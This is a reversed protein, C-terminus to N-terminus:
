AAGSRSARRAEAVEDISELLSRYLLASRVAASFAAGLVEGTRASASAGNRPFARLVGLVKGRLRLPVCLFPGAAGDEPTDVAPDFRPDAQPDDTAVLCGTLLVSSTLGRERSLAPRDGVGEDCQGELALEGSEPDILYLSVPSAPLARAVPRLAAGFLREPDVEATIAECVERALEADPDPELERVQPPADGVAAVPAAEVRAAPGSLLPGLQLALLRLLTLDEDGFASGDLRDTACLVGVPQEFGEVPAVAFSTTEYRALPPRGDFRRDSALDGVVMAEGTALAKGAVGEGVVVVDLEHLPLERGVSGAVRLEGAEVDLLMMSSKSAGLAHAVAEAIPDALREARLAPETERALVALEAMRVELAQLRGRLRGWRTELAHAELARGVSLVLEEDHLPKALYDCAGLRLAELVDGQDAQAALAVVRLVPDHARLQRLVEIGALGSLGLDLVVAGVDPDRALKLAEEGNSATDCEIGVEVLADRIAERFFREDDVVLVRARQIM